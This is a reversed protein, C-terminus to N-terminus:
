SRPRAECVASSRAAQMEAPMIPAGASLNEAGTPTILVTDEVRFHMKGPIEVVPELNWVVGPLLVLADNMPAVTVDHVSLGVPHGLYRGMRLFADTMNYRAYVAQAVDRLQGLTVGGRMNRLVANRVEILLEYMKADYENFRGSVPWMRGIDSTYYKYDVGVDILVNDTAELRGRNDTYHAYLMNRGSAVIPTFVQGRAGERIATGVFAGELAYEYAGPKTACLAAKIGSATISAAERLRAVESPSKIWRLQDMHPNVDKIAADSNIKKIALVTGNEQGVQGGAFPHSKALNVTMGVEGRAMAVNDRPTVPVFVNTTATIHQSLYETLETLPRLTLGLRSGADKDDLLGPGEMAIMGPPRKPVFAVAENPTIVLVSGAEEIGSLYYLDPNQRFRVPYVHGTEGVLVAVSTDGLRARLNERRKAHEDRESLSQASLVSSYALAGAVM